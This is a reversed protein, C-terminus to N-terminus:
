AGLLWRRISTVKLWLCLQSCQINSPTKTPMRQHSFLRQTYKCSIGCHTPWIWTLVFWRSAYRMWTTFYSKEVLSHMVLDELVTSLINLVNDQPDEHEELSRDDLTGLSWWYCQDVLLGIHLLSQVIPRPTLIFLYYSSIHLIIPSATWCILPKCMFTCILTVLDTDLSFNPSLRARRQEDGDNFEILLSFEPM